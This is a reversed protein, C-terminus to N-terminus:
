QLSISHFAVGTLHMRIHSICKKFLLVSNRFTGCVGGKNVVPNDAKCPVSKEIRHVVFCMEHRQHQTDFHM